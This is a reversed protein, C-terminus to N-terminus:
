SAWPEINYHQTVVYYIIVLPQHLPPWLHQLKCHDLEGKMLVLHWAVKVNFIMHLNNEKEIFNLTWYNSHMFYQDLNRFVVIYFSSLNHFLYKPSWNFVNKIVKLLLRHYITINGVNTNKLIKGCQHKKKLSNKPITFNQIVDIKSKMLWTELQLCPPYILTKSLNVLNQQPCTRSVPGGQKNKNFYINWKLYIFWQHLHTDM